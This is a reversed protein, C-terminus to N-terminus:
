RKEFVKVKLKRLNRKDSSFGAEKSIGIKTPTSQNDGHDQRLEDTSRIEIKQSEMHLERKESDTLQKNNQQKRKAYLREFVSKNENNQEQTRRLNTVIKKLEKTQLYPRLLDLCSSISNGKTFSSKNSVDSASNHTVGNSNKGLKSKQNTEQKSYALVPVSNNIKSYLQECRITCVYQKRQAYLREFVSQSSSKNPTKKTLSRQKPHKCLKPKYDSIQSAEPTKKENNCQKTNYVPIHSAESAKKESKCMKTKYVPIHSAEPIKKESNYLKTNYVPIHSAKITKKKSNEKFANNKTVKEGSLSLIAHKEEDSENFSFDCTRSVPKTPVDQFDNCLNYVSESSRTGRESIKELSTASTGTERVYKVFHRNFNSVISRALKEWEEVTFKVQSDKIAYITFDAVESM